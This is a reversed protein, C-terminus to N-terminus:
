VKVTGIIEYTKQMFINGAYVSSSIQVKPSPAAATFAFTQENDISVNQVPNATNGFYGCNYDGDGVSEPSTSVPFSLDILGDKRNALAISTFVTKVRCAANITGSKEKTDVFGETSFNHLDATSQVNLFSYLYSTGISIGGGGIVALGWFKVYPLQIVEFTYSTPPVVAYKSDIEFIGNGIDSVSEEYLFYSTQTTHATGIPTPVYASKNQVSKEVFVYSEPFNVDKIFFNSESDLIVRGTLPSNSPMDDTRAM